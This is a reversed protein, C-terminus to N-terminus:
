SELWRLFETVKPKSILVKEPTECSIKLFLRRNFYYEVTQIIERNIIFQRNARNFQHPDLMVEIQDMTYQTTFELNSNTNIYVSGFATYVYTIDTTKVPIIKEKHFVLITRKFGAEI